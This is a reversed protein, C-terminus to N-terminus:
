FTLFSPIRRSLQSSSSASLSAFLREIRVCWDSLEVLSERNGVCRKVKGPSWECAFFQAKRRRQSPQCLQQLGKEKDAVIDHVRADGASTLWASISSRAHAHDADVIGKHELRRDVDDQLLM